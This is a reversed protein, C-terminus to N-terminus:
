QGKRVSTTLSPAFQCCTAWLPLKPGFKPGINLEVPLKEVANPYKNPLKEALESTTPVAAPLEEPRTALFKGTAMPCNIGEAM